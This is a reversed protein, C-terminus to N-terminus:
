TSCARAPTPTSSAPRSTASCCRPISRSRALSRSVSRRAAPCSPPCTTAGEGRPRGARAARASGASARRPAAPRSPSTRSRPSTRCCTRARSSTPSGARTGSARRRRAVCRSARGTSRGPTPEVLGGLSTCCRRRARARAAAAARAARRARGRADVGDLAVVRATAPATRRGRRRRCRRRARPRRERRRRGDRMEIVRDARTPSAARTPSSWSRAATARRAPSAAGRARAARERADLEGTPEDALVLPAERAAAAAIAVRQQEGGSLAGRATRRARDRPRVRRAGLRGGRPPASAPSACRRDRRERARDPAALLNDSQFVIAVERARYRPSSPARRAAGLSRGFARVEGASPQTSGPPSHSSRARAPAPRGSSRSSSAAARHAPRPRAARGDRGARLPLDQLRRHFELARGVRRRTPARARPLPESVEVPLERDDAPVRRRQRRREAHRSRRGRAKGGHALYYRDVM